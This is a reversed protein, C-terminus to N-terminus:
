RSGIATNSALPHGAASWPLSAALYSTVARAFIGPSTAQRYHSIGHTGAWAHPPGILSNPNFGPRTLRREAPGIVNPGAPIKNRASLAAAVTNATSTASGPAAPPASGNSRSSTSARTPDNRPQSGPSMVMLSMATWGRDCLTYRDTRRPWPSAAWGTSTRILRREVAGDGIDRQVLHGEGRHRDAVGGGLVVLPQVGRQREAVLPFFDLEGRDLDAEQPLRDTGRGDGVHGVRAPRQQDGPQRVLLEGGLQPANREGEAGRHGAAAQLDEMDRVTLPLGRGRDAREHGIVVARADQGAVGARRDHVEPEGVERSPALATPRVTASSPGTFWGSSM